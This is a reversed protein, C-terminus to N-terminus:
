VEQTHVRHAAFPLFKLGNGKFFKGFFEVVNLRAGHILSELMGLLIAMFHGLLWLVLTVLFIVFGIPSFDLKPLLLDNIAEALIVAGVGVAAIRLYSMVNSLLGPIEVTAMGGETMILGIVSIIFLVVSPWTLFPFMGYMFGAIMLFGSIEIGLWSLKAYAHKRSHHWENIAGLMFALALHLMGIILSLMMLFTVSAVRHMGQYLLMQQGTAMSIIQSHTFGFYEDFIIGAFFTPIACIAWLMAIEHMLTGPKSKKAMFLALILSVVAYGADGLILAYMIPVFVMLLLTPDIESYQPTSIFEVLFEFPKTQKPNDLLTPPSDHAGAAHVSLHIKKKFKGKMDQMVQHAKKSEVWGEMYYLSDTAGFMTAVQARDAEISLAEEVAVLRPYLSDSLKELRAQVASIKERIQAEKERLIHLEKKPTSSIAPLALPQGIGELPKAEEGKRCAVLIIESGDKSVTGTHIINKRGKMTAHSLQRKDKSVRFLSFQLSDAALVSFDIDLAEIESLSKQFSLNSDLEKEVEEKEKVLSFLKESHTIIEDAEAASDEIERKKKPLKGEKGFAEKMARIKVLRSSIEDFSSLPGSRSVEPASSDTIHIVSLKQLESVVDSAAAKLCIARVKSMKVPKLM